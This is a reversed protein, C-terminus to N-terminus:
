QAALPTDTRTFKKTKEWAELDRVDYRVRSGLRIFVPGRGQFRLQGATGKPLGYREEFEKSDIYRPLENTTRTM